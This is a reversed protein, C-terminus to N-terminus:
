LAFASLAARYRRAMVLLDAVRVQEEDTHFQKPSGPGWMIAPIGKDALYGADLASYSFYYEPKPADAAALARELRTV